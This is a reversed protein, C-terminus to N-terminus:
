GRLVGGVGDDLDLLAKHVVTIDAGTALGARIAADALPVRVADLELDHLITSDAAVQEAAPGVHATLGEAEDLVVLLDAVRGEFLAALVDARGEAGEGRGLAEALRETVATRRALAEDRVAVDVADILQDTSGDEARSGGEIEVLMEATHPDLSERLLSIMRDTGTVLVLDIDLRAVEARLREAVLRATAEWNEEARQQFRQQSWGGPNSKTIHTTAGEVTVDDDQDLASVLEIDAGERDILVVAHPVWTQKAAVLRGLAPIPGPQVELDVATPMSWVQVADDAVVAVLGSGADHGHDRLADLLRSVADADIEHQGLEQELTALRAQFQEDADEGESPAPVFVTADCGREYWQRLSSGTAQDLSTM